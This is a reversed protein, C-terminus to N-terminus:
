AAIGSIAQHRAAVASPQSDLVDVWAEVVADVESGQGVDLTVGRESVWILGAREIPIGSDSLAAVSAGLDAWPVRADIRPDPGSWISAASLLGDRRSRMLLDLTAAAQHRPLALHVLSGVVDVQRWMSHALLAEIGPRAADWRSSTPKWPTERRKPGWVSQVYNAAALRTLHCREPASPSPFALDILLKVPELPYEADKWDTL